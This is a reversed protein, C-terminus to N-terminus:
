GGCAPARWRWGQPRGIVPSSGVYNSQNKPLASTSLLVRAFHAALDRLQTQTEATMALLSAVFCDM